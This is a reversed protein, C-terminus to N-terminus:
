QRTLERLSKGYISLLIEDLKQMAAVTLPCSPDSYADSLKADFEHDKEMWTKKPEPLKGALGAAVAKSLDLLLAEEERVDGLLELLGPVGSLGNESADLYLKVEEEVDFDQYRAFLKGPLEDLQTYFEVENLERGMSTFGTFEAYKETKGKSNKQTKFKVSFDMFEVAAAIGDKKSM